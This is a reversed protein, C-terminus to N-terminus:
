NLIRKMVNSTILKVSKSAQSTGKKGNIKWNRAAVNKVKLTGIGLLAVENGEVLAKQIIEMITGVIRKSGSETLELDRDNRLSEAIKGKTIKM